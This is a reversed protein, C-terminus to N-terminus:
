SCRASRSTRRSSSTRAPARGAASRRPDFGTTGIVVHVGAALCALANACRPTPGPSTSSWTPTAWSTPWRRAWRRTPAAPSSSTTPARSRRACRRRGHARRRGRRRRPDVRRRPWRAALRARAGRPVRGRRRRHGRREPARARVARAGARAPRRADRRRHARRARRGHAAAARGAGLLRPPEHARTTSELSLVVRGKVNEKSRELEEATAPDERLRELEDGVVRLAARRQGPAHRPVPRGPGHGAYLAPVLLRQLGPRAERAGGPVAALVVHRRPHQRARAARLPARRRPRHGARGPVPPVARHGQSVFRVRAPESGPPRPPRAAGRRSARDARRRARRAADHDVSGAAAVVVNGPVYRAAHFARLAPPPTRAVVEARGIIARGLPHDGFVAEGLVDFVKDQPDDEYM